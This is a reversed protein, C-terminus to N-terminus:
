IQIDLYGSVYMLRREYLPFYSVSLPCSYIASCMGHCRGYYYKRYGSPCYCKDQGGNSVCKWDCLREYWSKCKEGELTTIVGRGSPTITPAITNPRLRETKIAMENNNSTTPTTESAASM